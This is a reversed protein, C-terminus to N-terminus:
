SSGKGAESFSRSVNWRAIIVVLYENFVSCGGVLFLSLRFALFTVLQNMSLLMM